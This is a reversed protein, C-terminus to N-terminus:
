KLFYHHANCMYVYCHDIFLVATKNYYYLMLVAHINNNITMRLHTTISNVAMFSPGAYTNPSINTNIPKFISIVASM